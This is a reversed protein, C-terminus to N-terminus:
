RAGGLTRRSRRRAPRVRDRAARASPQQDAVGRGDQGTARAAARLAARSMRMTSPTMARSPGPAKARARRARARRWAVADDVRAPDVRVVVQELRQQLAHRRCRRSASAQSFATGYACGRRSRRLSRRMAARTPMRRVSARPSCWRRRGGSCRNGPCPSRGPRRQQEVLGLPKAHAEHQQAAAGRLRAVGLGAARRVQAGFGQVRHEGADLRRARREM